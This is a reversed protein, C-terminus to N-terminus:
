KAYVKRKTPLHSKYLSKSTPFLHQIKNINTITIIDKIIRQKEEELPFIMEMTKEITEM